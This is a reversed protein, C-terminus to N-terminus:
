RDTARRREYVLTSAGLLLTDGHALLQQAPVRRGNVFTGNTSNLDHVVHGKSTPVQLAHEGSVDPDNLAVDNGTNRGIRMERRLPFSRGVHMDDPCATIRLLGDADSVVAVSPLGRSVRTQDARPLDPLDDDELM